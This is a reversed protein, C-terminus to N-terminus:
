LIRGGSATSLALAAEYQLMVGAMVSVAILEMMAVGWLPSVTDSEGNGDGDGDGGGDEEEEEGEEEEEEGEGEGRVPVM